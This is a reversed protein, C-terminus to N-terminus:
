HGHLDRIDLPGDLRLLRCAERFDEPSHNGRDRNSERIVVDLVRNHAAFWYHDQNQEPKGSKVDEEYLHYSALKLASTITEEVTSSRGGYINFCGLTLYVAITKRADVFNDNHRRALADVLGRTDTGEPARGIDSYSRGVMMAESRGFSM